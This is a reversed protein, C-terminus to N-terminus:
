ARRVQAHAKALPGPPPTYTPRRLAFPLSRGPYPLAATLSLADFQVNELLFAGTAM